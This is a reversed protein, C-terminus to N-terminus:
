RWNGGGNPSRDCLIFTYKSALALARAATSATRVAHGKATLLKGLIAATDAHM